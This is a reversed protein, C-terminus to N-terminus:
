KEAEEQNETPVPQGTILAVISAIDDRVAQIEAQIEPDDAIDAALKLVDNALKLVITIIMSKGELGAQPDILM